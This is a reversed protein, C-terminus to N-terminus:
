RKKETVQLAILGTMTVEDKVRRAKARKGQTSELAAIIKRRMREIDKRSGAAEIRLVTPIDEDTTPNACWSLLESQTSAFVKRILTALQRTSARARGPGASAFLSADVEFHTAVAQLYRETTGRKRREGKRTLLGADLVAQVLRYLRPAKEGMREAVQMTTRPEEVFERLISLRFPDALIRAQGLSRITHTVPSPSRSSPVNYPNRALHGM